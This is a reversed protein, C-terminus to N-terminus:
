SFVVPFFFIDVFLKLKRDIYAGPDGNFSLVDNVDALHELHYPTMPLHPVSHVTIDSLLHKTSSPEIDFM